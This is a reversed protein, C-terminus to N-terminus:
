EKVETVTERICPKRTIRKFKYAIASIKEEITPTRRSGNSSNSNKNWDIEEAKRCIVVM